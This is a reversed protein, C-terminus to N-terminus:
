PTEAMRARVRDRVARPPSRLDWVLGTWSLFVLGYYTLDIEWWYFGQRTSGPYYHHNNHWGEGLTLLALFFNNRSDDTTKYRRSGIVHAVSNITYTAHYLVVTSVLFGWVFMQWGNTGLGPAIAELLAGFGYTAFGLAAPVIWHHRDLFVLEPYKTLDRVSRFNTLANELTMFWGMHSWFFGAQRPSHIDQEDDSHRHHHRHHAAWWLPGRQVCANGLVAAVFQFARSTRFTRHSFYRHYFGTLAFMRILYLAIATAVAVPSWGVLIVAFCGLHLAVYPILGIWDITRTATLTAM